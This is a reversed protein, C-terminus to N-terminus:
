PVQYSKSLRGRGVLFLSLVIAALLLLLGLLIRGIQKLIRM